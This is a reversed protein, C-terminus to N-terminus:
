ETSGEVNVVRTTTRTTQGSVMEPPTGIDDAGYRALSGMVLTVPEGVVPNLPIMAVLEQWDGDGRKVAGPNFRRVRGADIEYSAGSQTTFRM